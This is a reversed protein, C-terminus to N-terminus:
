ESLLIYVWETRCQQDKPRSIDVVKRGIVLEVLVVGFSYVNAKKTIQGSQTYEPALYMTQIKNGIGM